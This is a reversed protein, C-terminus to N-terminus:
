PLSEFWATGEWVQFVTKGQVTETRELAEVDVNGSLRYPRDGFFERAQDDIAVLLTGYDSGQAVVRLQVSM